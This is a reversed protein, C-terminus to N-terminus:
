ILRCLHAPQDADERNAYATLHRKVYLQDNIGVSIAFMGKQM